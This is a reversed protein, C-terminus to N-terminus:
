VQRSEAASERLVGPAAENDESDNKETEAEACQSSSRVFGCFFATSLLQQYFAPKQWRGTQNQVHHTKTTQAYLNSGKGAIELM